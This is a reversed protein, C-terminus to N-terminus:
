PGALPPEGLLYRWADRLLPAGDAGLPTVFDIATSRHPNPTAYGGQPELDTVLIHTGGYAPEGLEAVVPDGFRELDLAALNRLIWPAFDERQHFLGFYKVAPTEGIAVWADPVEPVRVDTPGSLMVVRDVHRIMAILAAQAAGLSHGGFAIQSWKPAGEELFRGWREDPYLADLYLLLKTLRNDISNAPNVDLFPSRDIGDVMELRMNGSCDPDPSGTCREVVAIDNQYMLGIVHYGLRAAERQVLQYGRPRGGAGPMFVFLRPNSVLSPDFWVYHHNFQPNVTGVWTIEPDTAQPVILRPVLPAPEATAVSMVAGPSVPRAPDRCAAVTLIVLSATLTYSAAPSRAATTSDFPAFMM